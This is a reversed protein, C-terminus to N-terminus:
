KRSKRCDISVLARAVEHTGALAARELVKSVVPAAESGTVHVIEHDLWDFLRAQAESAIRAGISTGRANREAILLANTRKVSAGITEWDLGPPDITRLDIIEADVRSQNVAEEAMGVMAGYALVTCRSGPRAIRARGIPVIYEWEGALVPGTTEFLADYEVMLVPDDCAHAANLMGIYDYPRSPALIRWGPYLAFLGSADMSHQSGYGSGSSVRSRVVIPVPFRGGFMHRVKGIQNFLQDAAGLAFDPYMIEVVPRLGNLAAGLAMGVFGNECIPTGILRNPFREAIGRTAGATGGRLRHVDEGLIVIGPMREMNRLMAQPIVDVFKAERLRGAPQDELEVAHLSALESLDGRIGRDVEEVNPWLEPRIRATSLDRHNEILTALARDIMEEARAELIGVDQGRILGAAVLEAPFARVPDRELWAKEEVRDRYGFASGRLGGSQHFFRYTDAELLVPGGDRAIIARAERMALYAAIVDMGDFAIAPIGLGLGRASLRTERTQEAVGTSVAYHNNEVFFVMPVSYLAALNMSEYVAGNQMAGDGLFAVSIDGREQLKDALAYGVAHPPNGGVIANSGLIGARPERLHMSGGRGGCYGPTLGLIEGYTRRVVDLYTQPIPTDLPDYHAQAGAGLAKALFQHHMRHTGNIKDTVGLAAIAGVAAGEQGISSHAPGHLLGAGAIKLLHEEFHRIVILQELMRVLEPRAILDHDAQGRELRWWPTETQLPVLREQSECM